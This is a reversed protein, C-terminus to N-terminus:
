AWSPPDIEGLFTLVITLGAPPQEAPVVDILTQFTTGAVEINANVGPSPAVGVAAFQRNDTPNMTVRLTQDNGSGSTAVDSIVVGNNSVVFSFLLAKGVHVQPMVINHM